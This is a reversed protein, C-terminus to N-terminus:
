CQKMFNEIDSPEKIIDASLNICGDKKVAVDDEIRIGIEEEAIYLGPEVTLVMGEKLLGENHRGVDHTELGLLHSVGHWYYKSVEDRDKILGIAKLEKAYYDKLKENLSRFPIGAKITDQIMYNGELVINYIDRQRATFKGNAPFTRTIDGSYLNWAAGVDCLLLSGDKIKCNNESYHLVAGNIGSAIISAFAKDFVGARKLEFDFYAEAEYEYMGPRVNKMMAYIGNKTIEIAKKINEIEAETKVTRKESLYPYINKVAIYPYAERLFKGFKLAPSSDAFRRKELDLYVASIRNKFLSDETEENFGDTFMITEISSLAKAEEEKLVAGTWKEKEPDPRELFLVERCEGKAKELYLIINKDRIGTLYYFNRDPAFPYFEDGTKKISEGSFFLAAEGDKLLDFVYRRNRKVFERM